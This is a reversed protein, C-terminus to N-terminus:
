TTTAFFTPRHSVHQSWVDGSLRDLALMIQMKSALVPVVKLQAYTHLGGLKLARSPKDVAVVLREKDLLLPMVRYGAAVRHPLKAVAAPDIPFRKLDVLPYGMKHALATQLDARSVIGAAVVLEGLPKDGTQTALVRELQARTLLGLALMSDGLLPVPMREQRDIAELLDQPSAIWRTAAVEEASPGFECRAYASRPVFVRQLSAEDDIPTFLYLGHSTEVHGATRGTLAEAPAGPSGSQLRYEREQAAAPVREVPAGAAKKAPTLPTTLTLRSFRSFPLTVAPGTASTRFSLTGAVPDFGLMEGEVAAGGRSEVRCAQIVDNAPAPLHRWAFPPVPWQARESPDDMLTPFPPFPDTM